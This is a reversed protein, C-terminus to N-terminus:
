KPDAFEAYITKLWHPPYVCDCDAGVVIDGRAARLGRDRAAVVSQMSETIVRVNFTRAIEETKDVSNNNVVIIEYLGSFDQNKLSALCRGILKEENYAPVVISIAPSRQM